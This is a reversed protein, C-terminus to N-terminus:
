FEFEVEQLRRITEEIVSMETSLGCEPVSKLTVAWRLYWQNGVDYHMLSIRLHKRFWQACDVLSKFKHGDASRPARVFQCLGGNPMASQFGATELGEALKQHLLLYRQNTKEAIEPHRLCYLAAAISPGFMGSDKFDMTKRIAQVLIPHAVVYGFRLGTANWGKSVSQLIIAVEEWGDIDLISVSDDFRIWDYAEDAILLVNNRRAWDILDVLEEKSYTTGTPNHPVNLYLFIKPYECSVLPGSGLTWHLQAPIEWKPSIKWGDEEQLQLEYVRIGRNNISSAIVPYSPTPFILWEEPAFFTSPIYEGLARKIAGPSYQVWSVDFNDPLGLSQRKLYNCIEEHTDGLETGNGERIGSVDTYRTADPCKKYYDLAAMMAEEPMKWVPDAISLKLLASEPKGPVNDKELEREEALVASFAYGGTPKDFERGGCRPAILDRLREELDM